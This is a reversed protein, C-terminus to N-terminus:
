GDVICAYIIINRQRRCDKFYTLQYIYKIASYIIIYFQVSYIIIGLMSLAGSLFAYSSFKMPKHMEILVDVYM